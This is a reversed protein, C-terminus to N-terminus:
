SGLGTTANMAHRPGNMANKSETCASCASAVCGAPSCWCSYVQIAVPENLTVNPSCTSASVAIMSIFTVPM